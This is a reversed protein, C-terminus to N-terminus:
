SFSELDENFKNEFEIELSNSFIALLMIKGLSLQMAM